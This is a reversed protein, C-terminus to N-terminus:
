TEGPAPAEAACHAARTLLLTRERSNRTLSAARELERRAEARRGLKILMDARVAPLLHYGQLSPEDTM